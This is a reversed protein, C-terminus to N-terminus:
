QGFVNGRDKTMSEKFIQVVETCNIIEKCCSTTLLSFQPNKCVPVPSNQGRLLLLFMKKSHISSCSKCTDRLTQDFHYVASPLAMSSYFILILVLYIKKM